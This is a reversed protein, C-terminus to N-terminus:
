KVKVVAIGASTGLLQTVLYCVSYFLIWENTKFINFWFLIKVHISPWVEPMLIPWNETM